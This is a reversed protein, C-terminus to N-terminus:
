ITNTETHRIMSPSINRRTMEEILLEIFDTSLNLEKAQIYSQILLDNSLSHM